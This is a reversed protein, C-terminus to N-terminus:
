KSTIMSAWTSDLIIICARPVTPDSNRHAGVIVNIAFDVTYILKAIIELLYVCYCKM